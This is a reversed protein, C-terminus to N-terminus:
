LRSQSTVWHKWPSFLAVCDWECFRHRSLWVTLHFYASPTATLELVCKITFAQSPM